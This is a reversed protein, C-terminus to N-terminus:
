MRENGGIALRIRNWNFATDRLTRDQARDLEDGIGLVDGLQKVFMVYALM